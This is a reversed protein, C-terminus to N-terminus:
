RFIVWLILLVLISISIIKWKNCKLTKKFSHSEKYDLYIMLIWSAWFMLAGVFAIYYLWNFGLVRHAIGCLIFACGGWTDIDDLLEKTLKLAM